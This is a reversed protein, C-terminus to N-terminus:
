YLNYICWSVLTNKLCVNCKSNGDFSSKSFQSRVGDGLYVEPHFKNNNPVIEALYAGGKTNNAAHVTEYNEFDYDDPSQEFDNSDRGMRILYIRYCCIPGNRESIRPLFLKFVWHNFDDQIKGWLFRGVQDPVTPPMVCSVSSIDGPRKSRTLAAVKVTYNTNPPVNEYMTKLFNENISKIKPGYTENKLNGRETRFTSIGDLVVQYSVKKGNPNTPPGWEVSM